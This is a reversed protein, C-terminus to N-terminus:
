AESEDNYYGKYYSSYYGTKEAEVGNFVVGIINAGVNDLLEIAKKVYKRDAVDKRTVFIVGDTKTAMIQADTIGVLPPLDFIVLDFKERVEKILQSMKNSNLLEAPNPPKPGSTLVNLQAEEIYVLCDELNKEKNLLWTTLGKKNSIGFTRHVTPKRMDADVFLVKKGQSAFVAAINASIMSKGEFPTSSTIIITKLDGDVMSYEINTRITRFQEAVISSPAVVVPLGAGKLQEKLITVEKRKKFFNM